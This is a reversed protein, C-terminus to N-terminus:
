KRKCKGCVEHATKNDHGGKSVRLMKGCRKCHVPIAMALPSFKGPRSVSKSPIMNTSRQEILGVATVAVSRTTTITNKGATYVRVHLHHHYRNGVLSATYRDWLM